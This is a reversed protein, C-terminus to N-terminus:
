SQPTRVRLFGASMLATALVVLGISVMAVVVGETYIADFGPLGSVADLWSPEQYPHSTALFVRVQAEDLVATAQDKSLGAVSLQDIWTSGLHTAFLVTVVTNGMAEGLLFTGGNMGGATGRLAPRVSRFLLDTRPVNAISAGAGLGALALGIPLYPTDVKLLGLSLVSVGTLVLGGVILTRFVGLDVRDQRFRRNLVIGVALSAVLTALAFPGIAIGSALDGYEQVGKLFNSIQYLTGAQALGLTTGVLITVAVIRFPAHPLSRRMRDSRSAVAAMVVVATLGLVLPVGHDSGWGGAFSIVAYLILLIGLAWAAQALVDRGRIDRGARNEPLRLVTAIVAAAGLLVAPLYTAGWGATGYLWQALAPASLAAILQVSLFIAFALPLVREGFTVMVNAMALPVVVAAFCASVLGFLVWTSGDTALGALVYSLTMGVLGIVMVRRRGALDGAAGAVVMIGAQLLYVLGVIPAAEFPEARLAGQVGASTAQLVPPDIATAAIALCCALLARWHRPDDEQAAAKLEDVRADVGEAAHSIGRAAAGARARV